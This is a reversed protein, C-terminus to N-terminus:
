TLSSGAAYPLGFAFSASSIATHTGINRGSLTMVNEQVHLQGGLPRVTRVSSSVLFLLYSLPYPPRHAEGRIMGILYQGASPSM